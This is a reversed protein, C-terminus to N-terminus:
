VKLFANKLKQHSVSGFLRTDKDSLVRVKGINNKEKELSNRWDINKYEYIELAQGHCNAMHVCYFRSNFLTKARKRFVVLVKSWKM